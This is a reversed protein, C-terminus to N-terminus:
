KIRISGLLSDFDRMSPSEAPFVKVGIVTNEKFLFFQLTTQDNRGKWVKVYSRDVNPIQALGQNVLVGELSSQNELYNDVTLSDPRRDADILVTLNDSDGVTILGLSESLIWVVPYNFSFSDGKYKIVNSELSLRASETGSKILLINNLAISAAKYEPNLSVAKQYELLGEDIHNLKLYSNALNNHAAWFDPNISIARRYNEVALDVQGVNSYNVGLNYFVGDNTRSYKAISKNFSFEDHWDRNRNFVIFWSICSYVVVFGIVVTKKAKWRTLIDALIISCGVTALLLYREALIFRGIKNIFLLIPLLSFFIIGYGFLALSLKKKFAIYVLVFNTIWFGMSAFFRWDVSHILPPDHQANLPFPYILKILYLPYISVATIIQTYLSMDHYGPLRHVLSGFIVLRMSFYIVLPILFALVPYWKTSENRLKKFNYFLAEYMFILIVLFTATEKATLSLFYFILSIYLYKTERSKRFKIYSIITLTIFILLYHDNVTSIFNGVESNVPNVLFILAGLIALYKKVGLSKILKFVLISDIFLLVINVFHFFWPQHSIQYTLLLQLSLFPRFYLGRTKCDGFSDDTFCGTLVKGINSIKTISENNTIFTVDDYVFGNFLTKGYFIAIVIAFIIYPIVGSFFKNQTM